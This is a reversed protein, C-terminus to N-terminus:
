LLHTEQSNTKAEHNANITQFLYDPEMQRERRLEERALPLYDMIDPEKEM